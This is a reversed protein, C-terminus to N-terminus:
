SVAVSGDRAAAAMPSFEVRAYEGGLAQIRALRGALSKLRQRDRPGLDMPDTLRARLDSVSEFPCGHEDEVDAEARHPILM